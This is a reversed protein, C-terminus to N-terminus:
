PSATRQSIRPSMKQSGNVWNNGETAAIKQGNFLRWGEVKWGSQLSTELSPFQYISPPMM